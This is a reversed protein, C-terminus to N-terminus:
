NWDDNTISQRQHTRVYTRFERKNDNPPRNRDLVATFTIRGFFKSSFIRTPLTDKLDGRQEERVLVSSFPIRLQVPVKRAASATSHCFSLLCERVDCQSTPPAALRESPRRREARENRNTKTRKGTRVSRTGVARCPSGSGSGSGKWGHIESGARARVSWRPGGAYVYTRLTFLFQWLSTQNKGLERSPPKEGKEREKKKGKKKGLRNALTRRRNYQQM